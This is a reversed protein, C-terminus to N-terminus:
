VYDYTEAVVGMRSDSEQKTDQTHILNEFRRSNKNKLQHGHQYIFSTIPHFFLNRLNNEM